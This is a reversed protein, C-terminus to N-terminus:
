LDCWIATSRRWAATKEYARGDAHGLNTAHKLAAAQGLNWALCKYWWTTYPVVTMGSSMTVGELYAYELLSKLKPLQSEAM